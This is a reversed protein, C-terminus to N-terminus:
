TLFPNYQKEFGITTSPGHGSYVKVEDDLMFLKTKISNILTNFDGGPLDTRGISNQFLVDGGIVYKDEKNYFCISGPSHGPTFFISLLSNGFRISDKEDIFQSPEPSPEISVGYIAATQVARALMPLDLKHMELGLKFYDAIFKNGIMHDIHGHTNLLKVPKLKNTEIFSVLKKREMEDYCGPDIIVCEKTEDFLVYTNEQFPNFTFSQITTMDFSNYSLLSVLSM